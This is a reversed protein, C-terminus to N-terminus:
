YRGGVDALAQPVNPVANGGEVASEDRSELLLLIGIVIAVSVAVVALWYLIQRLM